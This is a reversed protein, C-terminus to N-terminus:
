ESPFVEGIAEAVNRMSRVFEVRAEETGLMDYYMVLAVTVADKNQLIPALFSRFQSLNLKNAFIRM